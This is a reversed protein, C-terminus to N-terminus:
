WTTFIILALPFLWYDARTCKCIKTRAQMSPLATSPTSKNRFAYFRVSKPTFFVRTHLIYAFFYIFLYIFLYFWTIKM